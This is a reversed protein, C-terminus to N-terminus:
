PRVECDREHSQTQHMSVMAAAARGFLAKSNGGIGKEALWERTKAAQEESVPDVVTVVTVRDGGAVAWAPSGENCAELARARDKEIRKSGGFPTVGYTEDWLDFYIKCGFVHTRDNGALSAQHVITVSLGKALKTTVEPFTPEVDALKIVARGATGAVAACGSAADAGPALLNLLALVAALIKRM